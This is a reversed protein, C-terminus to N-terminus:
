SARVVTVYLFTQRYFVYVSWVGPFVRSLPYRSVARQLHKLSPFGFGKKARSETTAAAWQKAAERASRAKFQAYEVGEHRHTSVIVTFTPM